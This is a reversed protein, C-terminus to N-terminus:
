DNLKASLIYFACAALLALHLNGLVATISAVLRSPGPSPTIDGFGLTSFSVTSVYLAEWGPTSGHIDDLGYNLFIAASAAVVMAASAGITGIVHAIPQKNIEAQGFIM